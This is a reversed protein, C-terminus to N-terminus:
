EEGRKHAHRAGVVRSLGGLARELGVLEDETLAGLVEALHEVGRCSIGEWIREGTPTLSLIVQRRDAPDPERQVWGREVLTSILRSMTPASVEHQAALANLTRSGQNLLAMSRFQAMTVPGQETGLRRLEGGLSHLLAPVVSLFQEAVQRQRESDTM